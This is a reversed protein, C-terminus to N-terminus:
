KLPTNNIKEKKSPLNTQRDKPGENYRATLRRGKTQQRRNALAKQIEAYSLKAKISSLLCQSGNACRDCTSDFHFNGNDPKVSLQFHRETGHGHRDGVGFSHVIPDCPGHLEEGVIFQASSRLM